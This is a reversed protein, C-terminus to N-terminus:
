PSALRATHRARVVSHVRKPNARGCPGRGGEGRGRERKGTGEERKARREEMKAGGEECM